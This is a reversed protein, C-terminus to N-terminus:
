NRPKRQLANLFRSLTKLLLEKWSNYFANKLIKTLYIILWAMAQLLWSTMKKFKTNQTMPMTPCITALEVNTLSTSRISNIKPSSFNNSNEMKTQDLSTTARTEWIQRKSTIKRWTTFNSSSVHAQDLIRMSKSVKLLLKRSTYQQSFTLSVKSIEAYSSQSSDLMLVKFLGDVLVM